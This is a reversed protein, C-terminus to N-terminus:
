PSFVSKNMISIILILISVTKYVPARNRGKESLYYDQFLSAKEVIPHEETEGGSSCNIVMYEGKDFRHRMYRSAPKEM